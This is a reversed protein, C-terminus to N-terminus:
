VRQEPSIPEPSGALRERETERWLEEMYNAWAFALGPLQFNFHKARDPFPKDTEVAKFVIGAAPLMILPPRETKKRLVQGAHDDRSGWDWVDIVAGPWILHYREGPILKTQYNDTLCESRRVRNGPPRASLQIVESDHIEVTDKEEHYFEEVLGEKVGVDVPELQGPLKEHLLVFRGRALNVFPSWRFVIPRTDPFATNPLHTTTMILHYPLTLCLKAGSSSMDCHAKMELALCPAEPRHDWGNTYIQAKSLTKFFQVVSQMRSM